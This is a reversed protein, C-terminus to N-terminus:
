DSVHDEAAFPPTYQLTYGAIAPGNSAFVGGGIDPVENDPLSKQALCRSFLATLVTLGTATFLM